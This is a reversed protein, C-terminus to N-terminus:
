VFIIGFNQSKSNIFVRFFKDPLIYLLLYGFFSRITFVGVFNLM